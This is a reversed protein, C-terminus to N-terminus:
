VLEQYLRGGVVCYNRHRGDLTTAHGIDQVPEIVETIRSGSGLDTGIGHNAYRSADYVITDSELLEGTLALQVGDAKPNPWESHLYRFSYDDYSKIYLGGFVGDIFELSSFYDVPSGILWDAGNDFLDLTSSFSNTGASLVSDVYLKLINDKRTIVVSFVVGESVAVTGNIQSVSGGSTKVFASIIGTDSVNLGFPGVVSDDAGILVAPDAPFSDVKWVTYVTFQKGLFFQRPDYKVRIFSSTGNLDAHARGRSVRDVFSMGHRPGWVGAAKNQARILKGPPLGAVPNALDVGANVPLVIPIKDKAM